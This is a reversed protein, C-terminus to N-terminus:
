AVSTMLQAVFKNLMVSARSDQTDEQDQLQIHGCMYYLFATQYGDPVPVDSTFGMSSIDPVTARVFMDPRIRKAEYFALQLASRYEDDSYRYSSAVTDQM